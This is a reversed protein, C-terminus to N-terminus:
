LVRTDPSMHSIETSHFLFCHIHIDHWLGTPHVLDIDAEDVGHDQGTQEESRDSSNQRPAGTYYMCLLRARGHSHRCPVFDQFRLLQYCAAGECRIYKHEAESKRLGKTKLM